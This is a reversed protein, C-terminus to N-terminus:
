GFSKVEFHYSQEVFIRSYNDLVLIWGQFKRAFLELQLGHAHGVTNSHKYPKKLNFTHCLGYNNHWFTDFDSESCPMDNFSCDLLLNWAIKKVTNMIYKM